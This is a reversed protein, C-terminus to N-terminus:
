LHIIEELFLLSENLDITTEPNLILNGIAKGEFQSVGRSNRGAWHKLLITSKLLNTQFMSVLVTNIIKTPNLGVFYFMFVSRESSLFDLMKDLNYAKPNSDLIMIKTKVDTQTFFESFNKTYDGLANDTRFQPLGKGNGNLAFILDQKLKEDEGAIIYEIIRGRVNVNEILSALLIENQFRAVKDDIEKKLTVFDPSSIFQEARQPAELIIKRASPTVDFKKGTPTINNTAEILRPLNEEFGIGYHINYLQEFNDPINKIGEFNQMIDSGNFSGRINNERLKQSSHSIKKLFSSNALFLYNITPTVLCALFPKNDIKQLNSLSLVTNSFSRNRSSSFRISFEKCYFVSRDNILKFRDVVIKTLKNKDNIGNYHEILTIVDILFRSM